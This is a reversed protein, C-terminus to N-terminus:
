KEKRAENGFYFTAVAAIVLATWDDQLGSMIALAFSGLSYFILQGM